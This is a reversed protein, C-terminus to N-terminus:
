NKPEIKVQKISKNRSLQTSRLAECEVIEVKDGTNRRKAPTMSSMAQKLDNEGCASM